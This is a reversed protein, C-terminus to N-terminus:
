ISLQIPHLYDVKNDNGIIPLRITCPKKHNQYHVGLSYSRPSLILLIHVQLAFFTWDLDLLPNLILAVM